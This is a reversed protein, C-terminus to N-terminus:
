SRHKAFCSTKPYIDIKNGNSDILWMSASIDYYVYKPEKNNHDMVVNKILFPAYNGNLMTFAAADFRHKTKGGSSFTIINGNPMGEWGVNFRNAPRLWSMMYDRVVLYYLRNAAHMDQVFKGFTPIWGEPLYREKAYRGMISRAIAAIDDSSRRLKGKIPDYYHRPIMAIKHAMENVGPTMRTLKSAPKDFSMNHVKIWDGANNKVCGKVVAREKQRYEILHLTNDSKLIDQGTDFVMCLPTVYHDTDKVVDCEPPMQDEIAYANIATAFLLSTLLKLKM